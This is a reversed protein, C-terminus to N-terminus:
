KTAVPTNTMTRLAMVATGLLAGMAPSIGISTWDVGGVYTLAAPAVAVVAGVIITRFGKLWNM